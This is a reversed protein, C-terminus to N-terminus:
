TAADKDKRSRLYWTAAWAILVVALMATLFKPSQVVAMIHEWTGQPAKAIIDRTTGVIEGSQDVVDKVKEVTGSVPGNIASAVQSALTIGGSTGIVVRGAKTGIDAASPAVPEPEVYQSAIVAGRAWLGAEAARRNALGQVTVGNAKTWKMLEAPVAAYNGANLKKLLSSKAFNAEGCNFVFSVLAAFQNDSLAVTVMRDVSAECRSLDSRLIADAKARSIVMGATVKPPGAADTHGYGITLLGPRDAAGHYATLYCGEWQEILRLGDDNIHRGM